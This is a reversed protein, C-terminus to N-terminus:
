NRTSRESEGAQLLPAAATVEIQETVQGVKLSFDVRTSADVSVQVDKALQKTFGAVEVTITYLGPILRDKSFNGDTNTVIESKTGKNQDTISVKAGPVAGASADTVTGYISGFVQQAFSAPATM